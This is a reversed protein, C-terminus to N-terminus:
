RPLNTPADSKLSDVRKIGPTTAVSGPLHWLSAVEESNLTMLKPHPHYFPYLLGEWMLRFIKRFGLSKKFARIDLQHDIGMGDFFLKSFWTDSKARDELHPYFAEREVYSEFMEESRFPVRRKYSNQWSYDYPDTPSPRFSAYSPGNYQKFIALLSQVNQGTNAKPTEAIYMVRILSRFLPKSLKRNIMKIEDKHEELIEMEKVPEFRLEDDKQYSKQVEKMIDKGSEDKEGTKEMRTQAYGYDDYILDGKKYKPEIVKSRIQKKREEALEKLNFGEHTAENQYTKPFAKGDFKGTDQLILQYWAHEGKKMSGMWELIPTLPDHEFEEKPDKDQKYDIYTKIMKFDAPMELEKDEKEKRTDNSKPLTFTDGFRNTLGWVNVDTQRHDYFIKTVYDDAERIEINPYQSYFNNTILEKFKKETRVFFRVDGEISAIELSFFTVLNGKWNRNYWNGVGGSQLFASLVIEMAEPSKNVERPIKIELLITGANMNSLFKQQVYMIWFKWIYTCLLLFIGLLILLLFIDLIIQMCTDYLLIIASFFSINKL